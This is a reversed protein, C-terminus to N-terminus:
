HDACHEPCAGSASEFEQPSRPAEVQLAARRAESEYEDVLAQLKAAFKPDGAGDALRRFFLARGHLQETRSPKISRHRTQDM